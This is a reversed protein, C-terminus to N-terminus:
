SMRTSGDKVLPLVGHGDLGRAEDEAMTLLRSVRGVLPPKAMMSM